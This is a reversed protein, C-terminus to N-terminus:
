GCYDSRGSGADVCNGCPTRGNVWVLTEGQGACKFLSQGIQATSPYQGNNWADALVKGRGKFTHGCYFLFTKCDGAAATIALQSVALGILTSTALM